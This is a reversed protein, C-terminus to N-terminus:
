EGLEMLAIVDGVTEVARKLEEIRARSLPRLATKVRSSSIGSTRPLYIVRCIDSLDDFKGEWDGGMAFIDAGFNVIDTRKQTWSEEPFADHVYRISRVLELRQEFPIITQKGKKANFEDTSVGVIVRPGFEHLRELLRVHGIHILDFTGYTIVTAM